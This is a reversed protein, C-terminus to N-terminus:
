IIKDELIAASMRDCHQLLLQEPSHRDRGPLHSEQEGDQESEVKQEPEIMLEIENAANSRHFWQRVTDANLGIQQLSEYFGPTKRYTRNRLEVLAPLLRDRIERNTQSRSIGVSGISKKIVDLLEPVTLAAYFTRKPLTVTVNRDKGGCRIKRAQRM